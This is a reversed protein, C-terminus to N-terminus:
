DADVFIWDENCYTNFEQKDIDVNDEGTYEDDSWSINSITGNNTIEYELDWNENSLDSEPINENENSVSEEESESDSSQASLYIETVKIRPGNVRNKCQYISRFKDRQLCYKEYTLNVNSLCVFNAELDLLETHSFNIVQMTEIHNNYFDLVKLSQPMIPVIDLHNHSAILVRLKGLKSIGQPLEILDNYSVNLVELNVLHEIGLPFWTLLNNSVNLEKLSEIWFIGEPFFAMDLHILKLVYLNDWLPKTFLNNFCKFKNITRRCLSEHNSIDLFQLKKFMRLWEADRGVLCASVLELKKLCMVSFNCSHKLFNFHKAKNESYNFEELAPCRFTLFWIPVNELLNNNLRLVKLTSICDPEVDFQTIMNFSLDLIQLSQLGGGYLCSPVTNLQNHALNLNNLHLFKLANPLITLDCYSLDLCTINYLSQQMHGFKGDELISFLSSLQYKEMCKEADEESRKLSKIVLEKEYRNLTIQYKSLNKSGM